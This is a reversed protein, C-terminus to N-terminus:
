PRRDLNRMDTSRRQLSFVDRGTPSAHRGFVSALAQTMEGLTARARVADILTPVTNRGHSAADRVAELMQQVKRGDRRAKVHRLETIAEEAITSSLAFSINHDTNGPQPKFNVGVILRRGSQIDEYDRFASNSLEDEIFGNEIAAVAGGHELIDAVYAAIESELRDTL